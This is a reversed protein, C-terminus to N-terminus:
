KRKPAGCNTCFLSTNPMLTQCHSCPIMVVEKLVTEKLITTPSQSQPSLKMRHTTSLENYIEQSLASIMTEMNQNLSRQSSIITLIRLEIKRKERYFLYAVVLLIIAIVILFSSFLGFLLFLIGLILSIAFVGDYNRRESELSQIGFYKASDKEWTDKLEGVKKRLAPSLESEDFPFGVRQSLQALIIARACM